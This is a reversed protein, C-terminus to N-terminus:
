STRGKGKYYATKVHHEIAHLRESLSFLAQNASEIQDIICNLEKHQQPVDGELSIMKEAWIDVEGSVFRIQEILLGLQQMNGLYIKETTKLENDIQKLEDQMFSIEIELDNKEALANLHQEKLRDEQEISLSEVQRKKAAESQLFQLREYLALNEHELEELESSISLKEEYIVQPEEQSPSLESLQEFLKEKRELWTSLRQRIRHPLNKKRIAEKKKQWDQETRIM